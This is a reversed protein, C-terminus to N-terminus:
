SIEAAQQKLESTASTSIRSTAFLNILAIVSGGIFVYKYGLVTWLYGGLFPITMSVMHDISIGMSLTPSVDEPVVAIKKLYTSRAMGVAALLQDIVYCGCIFYLAMNEKGISVFFDKSFAYGLCILILTAAEGALVYREGFKDILYGLAPKFFIGIGAIFFGLLAFTSVGQGFEKILVWPGFTIFIQKRAGYLISLIYFLTYEKKIILRKTKKNERHPTMFMILMSSVLFALSGVVFAAKYNVKINKFILATVLSTVLFVATNLGNIQGLRKGMNSKNSLNMVISNSVPMFLHQGMSYITLCVIMTGYSSSLLGLGMMGLAALINAVAAIRADGLFLLIGSVFVVMFGPFERPIELLARQTVAIHFTDNLFNNFVSSDISQSIGLVASALMFLIFDNRKMAKGRNKV